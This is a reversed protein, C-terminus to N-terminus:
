YTPRNFNQGLIGEIVSLHFNTALSRGSRPDPCVPWSNGGLAPFFFRRCGCIAVLKTGTTAAPGTAAPQKMYDWNAGYSGDTTDLREPFRTERVRLLIRDITKQPIDV